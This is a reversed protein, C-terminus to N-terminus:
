LYMYTFSVANHRVKGLPSTSDDASVCLCVYLFFFFSFFPFPTHFSKSVNIKHLLQQLNSM